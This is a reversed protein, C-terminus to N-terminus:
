EDWSGVIGAMRLASVLDNFDARLGRITTSESYAVKRLAPLEKDAEPTVEMGDVFLRKVYLVDLKTKAM